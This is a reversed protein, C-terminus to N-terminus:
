YHLRRTPGCGLDEGSANQMEPLRLIRHFRSPFTGSRLSRRGGDAGLRQTMGSGHRRQAREGQQDIRIRNARPESEVIFAQDEVIRAPSRGAGLVDALNEVASVPPRLSLTSKIARDCRERIEEIIRAERYRGLAYLVEALAAQAEGFEPKL